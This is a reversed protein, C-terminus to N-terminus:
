PSVERLRAIGPLDVQNHLAILTRAGALGDAELGQSRQFRELAKRLVPDFGPTELDSFGLEPVEALLRRLWRIAEAEDGPGIVAGGVPPPQWLVVFDGSWARELAKAPIEVAGEPGDILATDRRLGALVLYRAEPADEEPEVALLAPRDLRRLVALAGRGSECRLGLTAVRACPAGEGLTDLEVGWRRLLRLMAEPETAAAARLAEPLRRPLPEVVEAESSTGPGALPHSSRAGLWDMGWWAAGLAVALVAGVVLTPSAGRSRDHHDVPDGGLERAARAVIGADVRPHRSVYAGLLARDCLINILRPLGRSWRHIRWLAMATFPMRECGAVALRHGIYASTEHHDFPHLHVRATIRQDVQRLQARALMRRLEPQGILFIQLLKHTSTELNTLLRIQELVRPRLNQAEDIILLARRGEAHLALLYQNLADVLRKLSREGAAIAIGFEECVAVLLERATLCPNLILAVEVHEPLQELFARCVTTKGTGVEGTLLVFGGQEGAGYVLHALAERHQASLFLYRPDPAISFCPESLGFYSPYM